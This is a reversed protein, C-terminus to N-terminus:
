WQLDQHPPALLLNLTPVQYSPPHEIYAPYFDSDVPVSDYLLTLNLSVIGVQDSASTLVLLLLPFM